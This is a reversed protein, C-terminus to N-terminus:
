PRSDPTSLGPNIQRESHSAFGSKQFAKIPNLVRIQSRESIGLSALDMRIRLAEIRKRCGDNKIRHIEVEVRPEGNKETAARVELKFHEPKTCGKNSVVIELHKPYITVGHLTELTTSPVSQAACASLTVVGISCMMLSKMKQFIKHLLM